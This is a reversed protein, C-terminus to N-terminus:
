IVDKYEKLSADKGSRFPLRKLYQHCTLLAACECVWGRFSISQFVFDASAM